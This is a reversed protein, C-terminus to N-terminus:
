MGPARVVARILSGWTPVLGGALRIGAIKVSADGTRWPADLKFTTGAAV